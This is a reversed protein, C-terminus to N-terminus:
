DYAVELKECVEVYFRRLRAFAEPDMCGRGRSWQLIATPTVGARESIVKHTYGAERLLKIMREKTDM